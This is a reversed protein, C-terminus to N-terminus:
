LRNLRLTYYIKRLSQRFKGHVMTGLYKKIIRKLSFIGMPKNEKVVYETKSRMAEIMFSSLAYGKIGLTKKCAILCDQEWEAPTRTRIYNILRPFVDDACHPKILTQCIKEGEKDNCLDIKQVFDIMDSYLQIYSSLHAINPISNICSDNRQLYNCFYNNVSIYKKCAYIAEVTFIVDEKGYSDVFRLKNNEIFERLYLKNWVISGIRYDIFHNLADRGGNSSFAFSHYKEINNNEWVKKIGCAVIEANYEEAISALYNLTEHELWDDSDLFFIYKGKAVNLGTNRSEGQKKNKSHLIMKIMPNYLYKKKLLDQTNDTSADDIIIVELNILGQTLISDVAKEIYKASNYTPIIVSILPINSVPILDLRDQNLRNMHAQMLAFGNRRDEFFKDRKEDPITSIYKDMYLFTSPQWYDLKSQSKGTTTDRGDEFCGFTKEIKIFNFKSAADLLFEIDMTAKNNVNFPCLEQVKRTYFYGVSNHSFANPEWHRLMGELTTRPTNLFECGMRLSKVLVNGMVFDIGKEFEKIV